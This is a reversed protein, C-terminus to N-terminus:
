ARSGFQGCADPIRPQSVRIRKKVHQDRTAFERLCKSLVEEAFAAGIPSAKGLTMEPCVKKNDIPNTAFSHGKMSNPRVFLQEGGGLGSTCRSGLATMPLFTGGLGATKRGILNGM